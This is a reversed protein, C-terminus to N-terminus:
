SDRIKLNKYILIQSNYSRFNLSHQSFNVARFSLNQSNQRELVRLVWLLIQITDIITHQLRMYKWGPINKMGRTVLQSTKHPPMVPRKYSILNGGWGTFYGGMLDFLCKIALILGKWIVGRGSLFYVNKNLWCYSWSPQAKGLETM